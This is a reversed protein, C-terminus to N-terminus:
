LTVLTTTLVKCFVAKCHIPNGNDCICLTCPEPGPIYHHGTEFQLGNVDKCTAGAASM